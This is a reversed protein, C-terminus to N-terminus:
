SSVGDLREMMQIQVKLQDLNQRTCTASASNHGSLRCQRKLTDGWMAAADHYRGANALVSGLSSASRLAEDHDPGHLETLVRLEEEQLATAIGITTPEQMLSLPVQVGGFTCDDGISIASMHSPQYKVSPHGLNMTGEKLVQLMQLADPHTPGLANRQSVLLRKATTVVKLLLDAVHFQKYRVEFRQLMATCLMQTSDLYGSIAHTTESPLSDYRAALEALYDAGLGNALPYDGGLPNCVRAWLRMSHAFKQIPNITVDSHHVDHLYKRGVITLLEAYDSGVKITDRHNAGYRVVHLRLLNDFHKHGM